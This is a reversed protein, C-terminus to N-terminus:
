KKQDLYMGDITRVDKYPNVYFQTSQKSKNMQQMEKKLNNQLQLMKETIQENMKVVQQGIKIEDDTYPPSLKQIYKERREILDNMQEIFQERNKELQKENFLNLLEHTLSIVKNLDNKM